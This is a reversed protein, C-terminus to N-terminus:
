AAATKVGAYAGYSTGAGPNDHINLDYRNLARITLVDLNFGYDQSSAFEVEKRQGM